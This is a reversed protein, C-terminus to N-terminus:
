TMPSIEVFLAGAGTENLFGMLKGTKQPHSVEWNMGQPALFTLEYADALYGFASHQSWLGAAGAPQCYRRRAQSAQGTTRMPMLM